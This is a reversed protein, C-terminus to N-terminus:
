EIDHIHERLEQLTGVVGYLVIRAWRKKIHPGIRDLSKLILNLLQRAEEATLSGEEMSQLLRMLTPVDM